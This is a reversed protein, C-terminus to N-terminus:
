DHTRFDEQPEQGDNTLEPATESTLSTTSDAFSDRMGGRSSREKDTTSRDGGRAKQEEYDEPTAAQVIGYLHQDLCQMEQEVSFEELVKAFNATDYKNNMEASMEFVVFQNISSHITNSRDIELDRCARCYKLIVRRFKQVFNNATDVTEKYEVENDKLEMLNQMM